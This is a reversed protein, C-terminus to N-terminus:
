FDSEDITSDLFVYKATENSPTCIDSDIWVIIWNMFYSMLVISYEKRIAWSIWGM